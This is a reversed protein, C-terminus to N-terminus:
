SSEQCRACVFRHPRNEDFGNEGSVPDSQGQRDRADREDHEDRRQSQSGHAEPSVRQGREVDDRDARRRGDRDRQRAAVRVDDREAGFSAGPCNEQEHRREDSEHGRDHEGPHKRGGEAQELMGRSFSGKGQPECEDRECAIGTMCGDSDAEKDDTETQRKECRVVPGREHSSFM